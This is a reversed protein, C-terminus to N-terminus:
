PFNPAHEHLQRELEAIRKRAEVLQAAEGILHRLGQLALKAPIGRLLNRNLVAPGRLARWEDLERLREQIEGFVGESDHLRELFEALQDGTLKDNM